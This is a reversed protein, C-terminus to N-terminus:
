VKVRYDTHFVKSWTVVIVLGNQMKICHYVHMRKYDKTRSRPKKYSKYLIKTGFSVDCVRTHSRSHKNRMYGHQNKYPQEAYIIDSM